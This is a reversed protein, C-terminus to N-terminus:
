FFFLSSRTRPDRARDRAAWFNVQSPWFVAQAATHVKLHLGGIYPRHVQLERYQHYERAGERPKKKVITLGM